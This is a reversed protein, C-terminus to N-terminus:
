LPRDRGARGSDGPGMDAEGRRFSESRVSLRAGPTGTFTIHNLAPAGNEIGAVLVTLYVTRAGVVPALAKRLAATFGLRANM